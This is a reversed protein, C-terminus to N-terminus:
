SWKYNSTPSFGNLSKSSFICGGACVACWASCLAKKYTYVCPGNYSGHIGVGKGIILKQEISRKEADKERQDALIQNMM